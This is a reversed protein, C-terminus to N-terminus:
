ISRISTGRNTRARSSALRTESVKDRFESITGWFLTVDEKLEAVEERLAEYESRLLESDEQVKNLAAETANRDIQCLVDQRARWLQRPSLRGIWAISKYDEIIQLDEASLSSPLHPLYPAALYPPLPPRSITLSQFPRSPRLRPLSPRRM